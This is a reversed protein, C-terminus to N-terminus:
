QFEEGPDSTLTFRAVSAIMSEPTLEDSAFVFEADRAPLGTCACFADRVTLRQTLDPDAVAFEPLLAVVPSEWSLLGDDVVTAAMLATMSKTVSGIMMLTEPTVPATGGLERVGFGAQYVVQGDQVVAIAAGPVGTKALMAEAYAALEAQREATFPLPAV